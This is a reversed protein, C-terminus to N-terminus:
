VATKVVLRYEHKQGHTRRRDFVYGQKRLVHMPASFRHGIKDVLEDASHWAGDSMLHLMRKTQTENM